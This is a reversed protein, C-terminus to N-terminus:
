ADGDEPFTMMRDGREAACQQCGVYPDEIESAHRKCTAVVAVHRGLGLLGPRIEADLVLDPSANAWLIDPV